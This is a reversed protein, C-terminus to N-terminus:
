PRVLSTSSGYGSSSASGVSKSRHTRTYPRTSASILSSSYKLGYDRTYPRSSTTNSHSSLSHTRTVSPNTSPSDCGSDSSSISHDRPIFIPAVSSTSPSYSSIYPRAPSTGRSHSSLMRSLSRERHTDRPLSTSRHLSVSRYSSSPSYGPSYTPSCAVPSYGGSSYSSYSSSYPSYSSGVNYGRRPSSYGSSANSMISTGYMGTGYQRRFSM